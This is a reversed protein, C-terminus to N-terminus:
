ELQNFKDSRQSSNKLLTLQQHTHYVELTYLLLKSLLLELLMTEEKDEVLMEEEKTEEKILTEEQKNLELQDAWINLEMLNSLKILHLKQLFSSLHLDKQNAMLDVSWRLMLLTGVLILYTELIVMLPMSLFGKFQLRM